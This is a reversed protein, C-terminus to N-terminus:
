RSAAIDTDDVSRRTEWSIAQSQETAIRLRGRWREVDFPSPETEAMFRELATVFRGPVALQPLHGVNEFVELRSGPMAKHAIEAHRVPIIPDRAGWIILVPMGESLYLRDGANVRQGGTDVVSRLTALFATRRDRDVLAAYGRAIEAVDASPRVGVVAFARALKSGVTAAVAATAGIFLEAGPMAAARLILSVEPGLGGSSVLVLRETAEPFQYAFQMAVGGGLSHGVLTAREYGLAVLLDRLGAALAGLSYDGASPASGGHGPLSAAVVTHRRALPEIV